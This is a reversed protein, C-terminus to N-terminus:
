KEPLNIDNPLEKLRANLIQLADAVLAHASEVKVMMIAAVEEYSFGCDLKLFTAEGHLRSIQLRVQAAGVRLPIEVADDQDVLHRDCPIASQAIIKRFGKFLDFGTIGNVSVGPDRVQSFLQVLAEEICERNNWFFIGYRFLQQVHQDYLRSVAGSGSVASTEEVAPRSGTVPERFSLHFKAFSKM